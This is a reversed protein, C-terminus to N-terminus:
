ITEATDYLETVLTRPGQVCVFSQKPYGRANDKKKSSGLGVAARSRNQSILM